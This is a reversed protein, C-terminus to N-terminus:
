LLPYIRDFLIEHFRRNPHAGDPWFLDHHKRFLEQRRQAQDMIALVESRRDPFKHDFYNVGEVDVIRAPRLNSDALCCWSPSLVRIHELVGLDATVDTLAGIVNIMTDFDRGIADLQQYVDLYCRDIFGVLTEGPNIHWQRFAFSRGIDTQFVLVQFDRHRNVDLLNRLNYQIFTMDGGPQALNWVDHGQDLLYQTIGQHTIGYSGDDRTGWEGCAWSCGYILFTM